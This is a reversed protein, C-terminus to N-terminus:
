EKIHKEEKTEGTINNRQELMKNIWIEDEKSIKANHVTLCVSIIIFVITFMIINLIRFGFWNLFYAMTLFIAYNMCYVIGVQLRDNKFDIKNILYSVVHIVVLLVAFQLVFMHYGTPDNNNILNNISALIIVFTFAMCINPLHYKRIEKM